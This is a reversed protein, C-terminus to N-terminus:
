GALRDLAARFGKARLLELAESRATAADARLGRADFTDALTQLADAHDLMLDTAEALELGRVAAVEADAASGRAQLARARVLNRRILIQRDPVPATAEFADAM